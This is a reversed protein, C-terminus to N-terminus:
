GVERFRVAQASGFHGEFLEANHMETERDLQGVFGTTGAGQLLAKVGSLIAAQVLYIYPGVEAGHIFNVANGHNGLHLTHDAFRLRSFDGDRHLSDCREFIQPDLEDDASTVSFAHVHPKLQPMDQLTLARNGTACFFIDSAQLLEPRPKVRHNICQAYIRQSPDIDWVYVEYGRARLNHAISQGIKGFGFVTIVQDAFLLGEQRLLAEASFVISKGVNWDETRKALSRAVSLCPVPLPVVSEYKQHGNETDEVVGLFCDGFHQKLDHVVRHFYGGIDIIMFRGSPKLQELFGIVQAANATFLRDLFYVPYRKQIEPLHQDSISRPKPIVALVEGVRELAKLFPLLSRLVHGVVVFGVGTHTMPYLVQSFFLSAKEPEILRRDAPIFM